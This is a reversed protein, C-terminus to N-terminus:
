AAKSKLNDSLMVVATVQFTKPKHILETQTDKDESEGSIGILSCHTPHLYIWCCWPVRAEGEQHASFLDLDLRDEHFLIRASSFVSSGEPTQASPDGQM